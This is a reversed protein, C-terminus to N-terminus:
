EWHEDNHGGEKFPISCNKLNIKDVKGQKMWYGVGRFFNVGKFEDMTESKLRVKKLEDDMAGNGQPFKAISIGPEDMIKNGLRFQRLKELNM